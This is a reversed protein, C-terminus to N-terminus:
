PRPNHPRLRTQLAPGFPDARYGPWPAAPMDPLERRLRAILREAHEQVLEDPEHPPTPDFGPPPRLWWLQAGSALESRALMQTPLEIMPVVTVWPVQLGFQVEFHQTAADLLHHGARCVVHGDWCHPKPPRGLFGIVHNRKGSVHWIQCPQLEAAIGFHRLVAQCIASSVACYTKLHAPVDDFLHRALLGLVREQAPTLPQSM